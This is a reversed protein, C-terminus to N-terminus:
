KEILICKEMDHEKEMENNKELALGRFIGVM